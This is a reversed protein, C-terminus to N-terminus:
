KRAGKKAKKKRRKPAPSGTYSADVAHFEFQKAVEAAAVLAKADNIPKDLYKALGEIREVLKTLEAIEGNAPMPGIHGDQVYKTAQVLLFDALAMTDPTAGGSGCVEFDIGTPTKFFIVAASNPFKKYKDWIQNASM